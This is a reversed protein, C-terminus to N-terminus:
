LKFNAIIIKKKVASTFAKIMHISKIYHSLHLLYIIQMRQINEHNTIKVGCAVM